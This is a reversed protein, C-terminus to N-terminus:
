AEGRFCDKIKTVIIDYLQRWIFYALQDVVEFWGYLFRLVFMAIMMIFSILLSFNFPNNEAVEALCFWKSGFLSKVISKRNNTNKHLRSSSSQYLCNLESHELFHVKNSFQSWNSTTLWLSCELWYICFPCRGLVRPEIWVSFTKLLSPSPKSSRAFAKRLDLWTGLLSWM